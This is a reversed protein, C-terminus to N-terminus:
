QIETLSNIFSINRTQPFIELWGCTLFAENMICILNVPQVTEEGAGTKQTGEAKTEKEQEEKETLEKYIAELKGHSYEVPPKKVVYQLSMATSLIYGCSDYTDNVAWMNIGM